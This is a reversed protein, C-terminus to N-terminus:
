VVPAQGALPPARGALPRAKVAHYAPVLMDSARIIEDFAATLQGSVRLGQEAFKSSSSGNAAFDRDPLRTRLLRKIGAIADDANKALPRDAGVVRTHYSIRPVTNM